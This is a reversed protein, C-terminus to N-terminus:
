KKRGPEAAAEVKPDNVTAHRMIKIRQYGDPIRATFTDDSVKPSPDFDSYTVTTSPQGPDTKYIIKFQCPVQRKPGLWIEWDVVDQKYALHDCTLDGIKQQDVWGGTTDKTMLADYPSTYLLDASPMPIAYEALLFDLAEDLTPPMPGRAWVKARNSVLTLHQGDYWGTGDSNEGTTTFAIGNPRRVTVRRSARRETKAGGKVVERREEATYAFTQLAAFNKSLEKLLADGKASAEEPTLARNCGAGAVVAIAAFVALTQRPISM